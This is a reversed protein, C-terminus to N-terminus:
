LNCGERERERVWKRERWFIEEREFKRDYCTYGEM